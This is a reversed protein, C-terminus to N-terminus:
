VIKVITAGTMKNKSIYEKALLEAHNKDSAAVWFAGLAAGNSIVVKYEIM